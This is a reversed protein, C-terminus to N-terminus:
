KKKDFFLRNNRNKIMPIWEKNIISLYLDYIYVYMCMLWIARDKKKFRMYKQSNLKFTLNLKFEISM